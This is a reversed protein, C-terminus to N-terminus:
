PYTSVGVAQGAETPVSFSRPQGEGLKYLTKTM